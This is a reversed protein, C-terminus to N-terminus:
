NIKSLLVFISWEKKFKPVHNRQHPKPHHIHFLSFLDNTLVSHNDIYNKVMMTHKRWTFVDSACLCFVCIHKINQTLPHNLFLPTCLIKKMKTVWKSTRSKVSIPLYKSIKKNGELTLNICFWTFILIYVKETKLVFSKEKFVTKYRICINKHNSFPGCNHYMKYVAKWNRNEM